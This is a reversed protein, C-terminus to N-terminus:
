EAAIRSSDQLMRGRMLCREYDADPMCGGATAWMVHVAKDMKGALGHRRLYANGAETQM